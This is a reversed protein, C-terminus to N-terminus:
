GVLLLIVEWRYVQAFAQKDIRRKGANNVTLVARVNQITSAAVSMSGDSQISASSNIISSTLGGNGDHDITLDGLSYINAYSNNLADVRLSM